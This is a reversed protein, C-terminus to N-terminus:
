FSAVVFGDPHRCDALQFLIDIEMPTIQSYMQVEHLMEEASVLVCFYTFLYVCLRVCGNLPGEELVVQTLGLRYWFPLVLRSKVSALSLSHCHCGSPWICTQVESWVSLWALVDGSQKKCARGAV